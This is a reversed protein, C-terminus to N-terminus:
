INKYEAINMDLVVIKGKQIVNSFGLFNLDKKDSCFINKIALDNVFPSTIRTIESKIISM